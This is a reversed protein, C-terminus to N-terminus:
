NSAQVFKINISKTSFRVVLSMEDIDFYWSDYLPSKYGCFTLLIFDASKSSLIWLNPQGYKLM